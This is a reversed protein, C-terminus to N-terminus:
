EVCLAGLMWHRVLVGDREFDAVLTSASRACTLWDAILLL